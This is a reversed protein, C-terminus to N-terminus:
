CSDETRGVSSDDNLFDEMGCIWEKTREVVM